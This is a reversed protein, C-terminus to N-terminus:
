MCWIWCLHSEGVLARDIFSSFDRGPELPFGTLTLLGWYLLLLSVTTIAQIRRSTHLILISVALYVLAIRQLVGPLRLNSLSYFFVKTDTPPSFFTVWISQRTEAPPFIAQLLWGIIFGGCVVLGLFFLTVTRLLIHRYLRPLSEGKLRRQEMSIVTTVGLIFLFAPFILDAATCGNWRAHVLPPFGLGADKILPNNVVIMAAITLGRLIDLSVLRRPVALDM